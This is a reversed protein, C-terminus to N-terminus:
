RTEVQTRRCATPSMGEAEWAHIFSNTAVRSHCQSRYVIFTMRSHLTGDSRDSWEDCETAGNHRMASMAVSYQPM